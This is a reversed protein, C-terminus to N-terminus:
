VFFKGMKGFFNGKEGSFFKRVKCDRCRMGQKVIGM